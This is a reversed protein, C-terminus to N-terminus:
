IRRQGDDRCGAEPADLGIGVDAKGDQAVDEELRLKDHKVAARRRTDSKRGLRELHQKIRQRMFINKIDASPHPLPPFDVASSLSPHLLPDDLSM